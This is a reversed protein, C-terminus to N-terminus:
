PTVAGASVHITQGTIQRSGSSCLFIIAAAVDEPESVRKFFNAQPGESVKARMAEVGVDRKYSAAPTNTIGPAVANVNIDHVGLQAAVIRTLTTLGGKASGYAPKAHQARFASASTVNVIRGGGGRAIAHRAFAQILLMPATLNVRFIREWEARQLDLLDATGGLIAASNVLFDVRGLAGVVQEVIGEIQDLESLDARIPLVRPGLGDMEAAAEDLAEGDIDVLAVSTDSQLFARVTAKGIGNAGGTVLAVEQKM